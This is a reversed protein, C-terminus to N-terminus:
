QKPGVSLSNPASAALTQPWHHDPYLPRTTTPGWATVSPVGGSQALTAVAQGGLGVTRCM